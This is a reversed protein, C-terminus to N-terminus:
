IESLALNFLRKKPESRKVHFRDEPMPLSLARALHEGCIYKTGLPLLMSELFFDLKEQDQFALTFWYESDADNVFNQTERNILKDLEAKQAESLANPDPEPEPESRKLQLGRSSQLSLTTTTTNIQLDSRQLNSAVKYGLEKPPLPMSIGILNAFSEGVLYKDDFDIIGLADLFEEKNGRTQFVVCVWFSTTRASRYLNSAEDPNAWKKAVPHFYDRYFIDELDALTKKEQQATKLSLKLHSNVPLM